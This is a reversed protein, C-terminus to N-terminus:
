AMLKPESDGTAAGERLPLRSGTEVQLGGDPGGLGCERAVACLETSANSTLHKM